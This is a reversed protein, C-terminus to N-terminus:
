PKLSQLSPHVVPKSLRILSDVLHNRMFNAVQEPHEGLTQKLEGVVAPVRLRPNHSYCGSDLSGNLPSFRAYFTHDPSEHSNSLVLLTSNRPIAILHLGPIVFYDYPYDSTAIATVQLKDSIGLDELFARAQPTLRAPLAFPDDISVEKFKTRTNKRPDENILFAKDLDDAAYRVLRATEGESLQRAAEKLYESGAM